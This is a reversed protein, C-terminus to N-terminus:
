SERTISGESSFSEGYRERLKQINITAIESLSFGFEDALVAAYWLLDGIEKGMKTRDEPHGHGIEKKIQESIEGAKIVMKMTVALIEAAEGSIGLGFVSKRLTSDPYHAATRLAELQYRNLTEIESM